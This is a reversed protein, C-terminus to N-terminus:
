NKVFISFMEVVSLSGLLVIVGAIVVGIAIPPFARRWNMELLWALITATYVGTIPLPVAVFFLLGWFGYKEVKPKGRKRLNDLYKDFLPIRYLFKDYFLRLAFFIPFFILANAIVAIFFTFLPDLGYQLIGLPIGGRLESIPSITALLTLAIERTM